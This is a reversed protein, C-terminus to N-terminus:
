KKETGSAISGMKLGIPPAIVSLVAVIAAQTKTVVDAKSEAMDSVISLYIEEDSVPAGAFRLMTGFASALIGYPPGEPSLLVGIAQKGTGGSLAEELQLVLKMQDKAPITYTEGGWSIKVENFLSM